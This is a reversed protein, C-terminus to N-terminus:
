KELSERLQKVMNDIGTYIEFPSATGKMYAPTTFIKNASDYVVDTVDAEVMENGWKRAIDVSGGHPWDKGSSGGLTLKAGPGGFKTGLIRALM